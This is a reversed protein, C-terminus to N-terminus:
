SVNGEGLNRNPIHAWRYNMNIDPIAYVEDRNRGDSNRAETFALLTKSLKNKYECTIAALIEKARDSIFLEEQEKTLINNM